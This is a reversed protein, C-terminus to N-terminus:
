VVMQAKCRQSAPKLWVSDAAVAESDQNRYFRWQAHSSNMISFEGYGFSNETFASWELHRWGCYPGEQNGGDGITVYVPGDCTTQNKYVSKTRDYAHVHGAFVIDVKHEYFLDEVDKRMVEAEVQHGINASYYPSHISVVVWPTRKRDVSELDAKLWEGQLSSASSECYSCLNVVHALGVEFSYWLQSDSSSRDKSPWGYRPLFNANQEMGSAYEHNGVIYAAPLSEWLFESLRGYHDWAPAFGDAYSLDGPFIVTDIRGGDLAHKMHQM